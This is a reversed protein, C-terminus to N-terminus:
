FHPTETGSEGRTLYVDIRSRDAPLLDLFHVGMGVGRVVYRVEAMVVIIPGGNELHFRLRLASGEPLPEKTEIFMGGVSLSRSFGLLVTSESEVQTVFPKRPDRAKLATRHLVLRLITQRDEPKIETFEIGVGQDGLLYIVKAAADM